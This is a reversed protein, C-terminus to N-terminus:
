SFLRQHIWSEEDADWSCYPLLIIQDAPIISPSKRDSDTSSSRGAILPYDYDDNGKETFIVLVMGITLLDLDRISIGVEVCRLLFLATMM